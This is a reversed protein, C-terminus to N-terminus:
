HIWNSPIMHGAFTAQGNMASRVCIGPDGGDDLQAQQRM